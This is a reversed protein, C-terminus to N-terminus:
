IQQVEAQGFGFDPFNSIARGPLFIENLIYTNANIKKVITWHLYGCSATHLIHSHTSPGFLIMRTHNVLRQVNSASM